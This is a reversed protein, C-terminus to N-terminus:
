LVGDSTSRARLRFNYIADEIVDEAPLVYILKMVDALRTVEWGLSGMPDFEPFPHGELLVFLKDVRAWNSHLRAFRERKKPSFSMGAKEAKRVPDLLQKVLHTRWARVLAVESRESDLCPIDIPPTARRQLLYCSKQTESWSKYALNITLNSEIVANPRADCELPPTQRSHYIANFPELDRGRFEHITLTQLLPVLPLTPSDKDYVLPSFHSSPTYWLDLVELLPTAELLRHIDQLDMRHMFFKLSRLLSPSPLTKSLLNNILGTEVPYEYRPYRGTISLHELLPAEICRFETDGIPGRVTLSTLRTFRIAPQENNVRMRTRHFHYQVEYQKLSDAAGAFVGLLRRYGTFCELSSWRAQVEPVFLCEDTEGEGEFQTLSPLGAFVERYPGKYRNYYSSTIRVHIPAPTSRELFLEILSLRPGPSIHPKLLIYEVLVTPINTWIQPTSLAINRWYHCTQAFGYAKRSYYYRDDYFVDIHVPRVPVSLIFIEALLEPPFSRLPFLIAQHRRSFDELVELQMWADQDIRSFPHDPTNRQEINQSLAQIKNQIKCLTEIILSREDLSPPENSTLLCPSPSETVYAM